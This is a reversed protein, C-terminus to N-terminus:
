TYIILLVITIIIVQLTTSYLYFHIIIITVKQYKFNNDLKEYEIKYNEMESTLQREKLSSSGIQLDLTTQLQKCRYLITYYLILSSITSSSITTHTTIYNVFYDKQQLFLLSFLNLKIFLLLTINIINTMIMISIIIVIVISIIVIM